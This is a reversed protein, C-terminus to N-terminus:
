VCLSKAKAYIRSDLFKKLSRVFWSEKKYPALAIKRPVQIHLYPNTSQMFAFDNGKDM